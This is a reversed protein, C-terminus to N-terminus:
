LGMAHVPAIYSLIICDGTINYRSSQQNWLLAYADTTYEYVPVINNHLLILNLNVLNDMTVNEPTTRKM